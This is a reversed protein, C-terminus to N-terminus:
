RKRFLLVAIVALQCFVGLGIFKLFNMDQGGRGLFFAALVSLVACFELFTALGDFFNFDLHTKRQNRLEQLIERLTTEASISTRGARKRRSRSALIEESVEVHVEPAAADARADLQKPEALAEHPAVRPLPAAPAEEDTTVLIDDAEPADVEPQQAPTEVAPEDETAAAIPVDVSARTAAADASPEDHTESRGLEAEDAGEDARAAEADAPQEDQEITVGPGAEAELTQASPEVAIATGAPEDRAAVEAEAREQLHAEEGVHKGTDAPAHEDKIPEVTVVDTADDADGAPPREAIPPVATQEDSVTPGDDLVSPAEERTPEPESVLPESAYGADAAAGKAAAVAEAPAATMPRFPKPPTKQKVMVEGPLAGRPESQETIDPADQGHASQQQTRPKRTSSTIKAAALSRKRNVDPRQAQAVIRTAEALNRAVYDASALEGEEDNSVMAVLQTGDTGPPIEEADERLLITRTGATKGAQTDRVADGITWSLSLDINFDRAAQLIMGPQPKRWPHESTYRRVAGQPHYPCYYFRDVRAGSTAYVLENVRQNTRNVDHETFKGRAVGGQNSFVIIKYGLGRLSAIASAAGKILVVKEPDGLDGDNVIITNDRDLFVARNM